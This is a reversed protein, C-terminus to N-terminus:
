RASAPDELLKEAVLLSVATAFLGPVLGWGLFVGATATGFASLSGVCGRMRAWGRRLSAGMARAARRSARGTGPSVRSLAGPHQDTLRRLEDDTPYRVHMEDTVTM